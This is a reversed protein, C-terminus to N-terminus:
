EAPGHNIEISADIFVIFCTIARSSGVQGQCSLHKCTSANNMIEISLRGQARAAMSAKTIIQLM